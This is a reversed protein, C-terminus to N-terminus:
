LYSLLEYNMKMFVRRELNVSLRNRKGSCLEGCVSFVRECYAESAPACVLDMAVAALRLYVQERQQWFALMDMDQQAAIMRCEALYRGIEMKHNAQHDAASDSACPFYQM